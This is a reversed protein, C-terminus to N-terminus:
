VYPSFEGVCKRWRSADGKFWRIKRHSIKDSKENVNQVLDFVEVVCGDKDGMIVVVVTRNNSIHYQGSKDM